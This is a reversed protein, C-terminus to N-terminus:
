KLNKTPKVMIIKIIMWKKIITKTITLKLM